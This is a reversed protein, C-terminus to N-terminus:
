SLCRSVSPPHRLYGACGWRAGLAAACIVGCVLIVAKLIEILTVRM